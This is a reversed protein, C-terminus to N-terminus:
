VKESLVRQEEADQKQDCLLKDRNNRREPEHLEKLEATRLMKNPVMITPNGEPRPERLLRQATTHNLFSTLLHEPEKLSSFVVSVFM